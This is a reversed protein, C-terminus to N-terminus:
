IFEDYFEEDNEFLNDYHKSSTYMPYTVRMSCSSLSLTLNAKGEQCKIDNTVMWNHIGLSLTHFPAKSSASVNPHLVSRMHWERLYPNYKITTGEDGNYIIYGSADNRVLSLNNSLQCNIIYYLYAKYASM